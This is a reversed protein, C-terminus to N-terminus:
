KEGNVLSFKYILKGAVHHLVVAVAHQNNITSSAQPREASTLTHGQTVRVCRSSARVGPEAAREWINGFVEAKRM